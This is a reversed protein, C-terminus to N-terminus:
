DQYFGLSTLQSDNYTAVLAHGSTNPHRGDALLSLGGNSLMYSYANIYLVSKNSAATQATTQFLIFRTQDAAVPVGYFTVYDTWNTPNVYTSCFVVVKNRPWGKTLIAADLVSELQTQFTATTYAAFNLGCDNIGYSIFLVAHISADYVPINNRNDYMNPSAIPNLPTASIITTGQVGNNNEVWKRTVSLKTTWREYVNTAGTGATVSNGYFCAILNNRGLAKQFENVITYLTAMEGATCGDMLHASRKEKSDYHTITGANNLAGITINNAELSLSTESGSAVSYGNIYGDTITASNRNMCYLGMGDTTTFSVGYGKMTFYGGQSSTYNAFCAQANTNGANGVGMDVGTTGYITSGNYFGMGASSTTFIVSPKAKTDAYATSGDPKAGTGSFTWTGTFTLRYAVDLDRPDKLNWKATSSSVCIFPYFAKLKTWFNTTVNNPGTGKLNKVLLNVASWIQVGNRQQRTGQFYTTRNYGIGTAKMFAIADPDFEDPIKENIGQYVVTRDIRPKQKQCFCISSVLFLLLFIKKM